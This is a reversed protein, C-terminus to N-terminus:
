HPHFVNRFRLKVFAIIACNIMHNGILDIFAANKRRITSQAGFDATAYYRRKYQVLPILREVVHENSFFESSKHETVCFWM